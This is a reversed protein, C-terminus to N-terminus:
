TTAAKSDAVRYEAGHADAVLAPLRPDDLFVLGQRKEFGCVITPDISPLCFKGGDGLQVSKDRERIVPVGCVDVGVACAFLDDAFGDLVLLDRAL